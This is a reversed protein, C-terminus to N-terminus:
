SKRFEKLREGMEKDFVGKATKTYFKNSKRRFKYLEEPTTNYSKVDSYFSERFSDSLADADILLRKDHEKPDQFKHSEIIGCIREIVSQKYGLDSLIESAVPRSYKIHLKLAEQKDSESEGKQVDQPVKSWGVDHLIAAPILVNRDGGDKELIMQMARVVMETHLVFDKKLGMKLYPVAADFIRQFRKEM